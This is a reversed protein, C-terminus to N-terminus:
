LLLETTQTHNNSKFLKLYECLTKNM